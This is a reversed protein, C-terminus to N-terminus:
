GLWVYLKKSIWRERLTETKNELEHVIKDTKPLNNCKKKLQSLEIDVVRPDEKSDTTKKLKFRLMGTVIRQTIYNSM